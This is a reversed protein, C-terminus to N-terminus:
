NRAARYRAILRFSRRCLTEPLWYISVAIRFGAILLLLLHAAANLAPGPEEEPDVRDYWLPDFIADPEDKDM